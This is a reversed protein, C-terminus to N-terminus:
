PTKENDNLPFRVFRLFLYTRLIWRATENIIEVAHRPTM